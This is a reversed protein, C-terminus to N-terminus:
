RDGHASASLFYVCVRIIHNTCIPTKFRVTEFGYGQFIHVGPTYINLGTQALGAIVQDSIHQLREQYFPINQSFGDLSGGILGSLGFGIM